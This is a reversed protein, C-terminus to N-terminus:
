NKKLTFYRGTKTCYKRYVDAYNSLLFKEEQIIQIHLCTILVFSFILFILIGNILFIGLFFLDLFVYIPNRSFSFVGNTILEGPHMDDIGLRWSNRFYLLAFYFILIGLIILIAGIIKTLLTDFLQLYLFSPLIFYGPKFVNLIVIIIWICFIIVFLVEFIRQELNKGIGIVIPNVNKRVILYLMRGIFAIFAIIFALIQFYEFFTNM